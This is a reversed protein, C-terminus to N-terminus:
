VGIPPVTVISNGFHSKAMFCQSESAVWVLRLRVKGHDMEDEAIHLSPDLARMMATDLWFMQLGVEIFVHEPKITPEIRHGREVGNKPDSHTGDGWSVRLKVGSLPLMHRLLINM